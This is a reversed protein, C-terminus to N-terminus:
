ELEESPLTHFDVFCNKRDKICLYVGCKTCFNTTKLACGERRCRNGSRKAQVGPLHDIRDYRIEKPPMKTIKKRTSDPKVDRRRKKLEVVKKEITNSCTPISTHRADPQPPDTNPTDETSANFQKAFIRNTSTPTPEGIM